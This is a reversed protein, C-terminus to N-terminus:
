ITAGTGIGLTSFDGQFYVQEVYVEKPNKAVANSGADHIDEYSVWLYDWARKTIGSIDGITIDQLHPGAAFKFTVEWLEQGTKSGTAGQFQVQDVDFGRFAGGNTRSTQLSLNKRFGPTVITASLYHKESWNHVPVSIDVGEVNDKTAGIAGKHDTPTEDEPAYMGRTQISQTIKQTGGGTDFTMVPDHKNKDPDTGWTATYDYLEYGIQEGNVQNLPLLQGNAMQVFEDLYAIMAQDAQLEDSIGMVLFKATQSTQNGSARQFGKLLPIIAIDV